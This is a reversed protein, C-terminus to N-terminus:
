RIIGDWYVCDHNDEEQGDGDCYAGGSYQEKRAYLISGISEQAEELSMGSHDVGRELKNLLTFQKPTLPNFNAARFDAETWM